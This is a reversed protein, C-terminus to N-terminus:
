VVKEKETDAEVDKDEEDAAKGNTANVNSPKNMKDEMSVLKKGIDSIKEGLDGIKVINKSMDAIERGM